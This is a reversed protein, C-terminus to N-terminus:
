DRWIAQTSEMKMYKSENAVRFADADVLYNDEASAAQGRVDGYQGGVSKQSSM